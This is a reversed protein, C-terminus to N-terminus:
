FMYKMWPFVEVLKVSKALHSICFTLHCATGQLFKNLKTYSCPCASPCPDDKDTMFLTYYLHNIGKPLDDDAQQIDICLLPESELATDMLEKVLHTLLPQQVLEVFSPKFVIPFPRRKFPIMYHRQPMILHDKLLPKEEKRYYMLLFEKPRIIPSTVHHLLYHSLPDSGPYPLYKQPDIVLFKSIRLSIIYTPKFLYSLYSVILRLGEGKFTKRMSPCIDQLPDNTSTDTEEAAEHIHLPHHAPLIRCVSLVDVVKVKSTDKTYFHTACLKKILHHEYDSPPLSKGDFQLFYMDSDTFTKQYHNIFRKVLDNSNGASPLSTCLLLM